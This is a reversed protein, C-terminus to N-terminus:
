KAHIRLLRMGLLVPYCNNILLQVLATTALLGWLGFTTVAFIGIGLILVGAALAHWSFPIKNEAIVLGAFQCHNFELFRYFLFFALMGQSLLTTKSGILNLIAAGGILLVGAGLVYGIIGIGWAQWFSRRLGRQDKRVFHQTFFPIRVSVFIGSIASLATILQNSLGYSATLEPGLNKSCLLINTNYIFYAGLSILATRWSNPVMNKFLEIEFGISKLLGLQSLRLRSAFLIVINSLFTGAVLSLLGAGSLILSTVTLIYILYGGIVIWQSEEVRGIGRLINNGFLAVLSFGTSVVFLWWAATTQATIVNEPTFVFFFGLVALVTALGVGAFGYIRKAVGYLAALKQKNPEGGVECELGQASISKAGAWFAAAFRAISGSFGMDFIPAIAGLSLFVYWLGIEKEPITRLVVPLILVNAGMRLGMALFSVAEARPIKKGFKRLSVTM